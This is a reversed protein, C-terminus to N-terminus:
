PDSESSDTTYVLASKSIKPSLRIIQKTKNKSEELSGGYEKYFQSTFDSNRPNLSSQTTKPSKLSQKYNFDNIDDLILSVNSIKLGIKDRSSNNRRSQQVNKKSKPELYERKKILRQHPKQSEHNEFTMKKGTGTSTQARPTLKQSKPTSIYKTIKQKFKKSSKTEQTQDETVTVSPQSNTKAHFDMKETVVIKSNLESICEKLGVTSIVDFSHIGFIMVKKVINVQFSDPFKKLFPGIIRDHLLESLLDM